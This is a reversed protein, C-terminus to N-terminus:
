HAGPGFGLQEMMSAMDVTGWHEAIRGQSDCRGIHMEQWTAKKGTPKMGQMEGRMTGTAMLRHVIKDGDALEEEITYNLDPFASRLGTIFMKFGERTPPLGPPAAHEIYDSTLLEDILPIDGKNVVEMILRRAMKKNDAAAMEM